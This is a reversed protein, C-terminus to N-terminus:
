EYRLAEAPPVSAARWAPYFTALVGMILSVIIITAVSTPDIVSPIHDIYYVDSSMFKVGTLTEIWAMLSDLQWALLLGLSAGILTGIGSLMTGMLLFIRM